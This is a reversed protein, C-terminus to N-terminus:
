NANLRSYIVKTISSRAYTGCVAQVYRGYQETLQELGKPPSISLSSM